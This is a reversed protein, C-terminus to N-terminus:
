DVDIGKFTSAAAAATPSRLDAFSSGRRDGTFTSWEATFAGELHIATFSCFFRLEGCINETCPIESRRVNDWM